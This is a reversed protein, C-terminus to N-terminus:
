LSFPLERGTNVDVDQVLLILPVIRSKVFDFAFGRFLNFCVRACNTVNELYAELGFKTVVPDIM